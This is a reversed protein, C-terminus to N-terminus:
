ELEYNKDEFGFSKYNYIDDKDENWINTFCDYIYIYDTNIEKYATISSNEQYECARLDKFEVNFEKKLAEVKDNLSFYKYM